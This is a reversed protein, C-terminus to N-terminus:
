VQKWLFDLGDKITKEEKGGKKGKNKKARDDIQIKDLWLFSLFSIFIFAEDIVICKSIKEVLEVPANALEITHGVLIACFALLMICPVTNTKLNRALFLCLVFLVLAIVLYYSQTFDILPM